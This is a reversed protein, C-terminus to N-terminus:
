DMLSLPRTGWLKRQPVDVANGGGGGLQTFIGTVHSVRGDVM